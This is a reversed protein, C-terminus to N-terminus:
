IRSRSGRGAQLRSGSPILWRSARRGLPVNSRLSDSCPAPALTKVECGALPERKCEAIVLNKQSRAARHASINAILHSGYSKHLGGQGSLYAAKDQYTILQRALTFRRPSIQRRRHRTGGRWDQAVDLVTAALHLASMVLTVQGVPPYFQTWVERQAAVIKQTKRFQSLLQDVSRHNQV